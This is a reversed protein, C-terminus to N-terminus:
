VLADPTGHDEAGMGTGSDNGRDGVGVRKSECLSEHILCRSVTDSRGHQLFCLAASILRSFCNSPKAPTEHDTHKAM